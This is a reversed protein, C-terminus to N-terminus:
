DTTQSLLNRIFAENMRLREPYSSLKMFENETHPGEGAAGLGVLLQMGTGALHNGDSAFGTQEGNIHIGLKKAVSQLRKLLEHSSKATMSPVHILEQTETTPAENLTPNFADPRQAIKEIQALARTLDAPDVYRIDIKASATACVVNPKTGGEISGINVTLNKKFNTLQAIRPLKESLALCANLGKQFGMGAHAALGKVNIEIWHVGSSSSIVDGNPLGPEFILGYSINAALEDFKKKSHPSGIEEDDNLVVRIQKRASMDFDSLLNLIMVVGGKMDMVGPGHLEDGAQTLKQFPSAKPFVTDLHGALLVKPGQGPVGGPMDGPIDFSVLKHGNGFDAITAHYGLKEFEPIIKKRVDEIGAVNETGSNIEVVEKLLSMWKEAIMPPVPSAPAEAQANKLTFANSITLLLSVVFLKLLLDAM